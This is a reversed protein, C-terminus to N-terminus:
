TNDRAPWSDTMGFLLLEIASTISPEHWLSAQSTAHSQWEAKLEGAVFRSKLTVQDGVNCAAEATEVASSGAAYLKGVM